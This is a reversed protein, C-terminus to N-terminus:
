SNGKSKKSLSQENIVESAILYSSAASSFIVLGWVLILKFADILPPIQLLLGIVILGLGLNDAKTLAHMRSLIDPFRILGVTGALFFFLGTLCFLYSFVETLNM